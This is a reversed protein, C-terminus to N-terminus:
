RGGSLVFCGVYRFANGIVAAQKGIALEGSEELAGVVDGVLIAGIKGATGFISWSLLSLFNGLECALAHGGAGDLGEARRREGGGRRGGDGGELVEVGVAQDRDGGVREGVGGYKWGTKVELVGDGANDVTM